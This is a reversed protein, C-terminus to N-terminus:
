GVKDSYVTGRTDSLPSVFVFRWVALLLVEDLAKARQAAADARPSAVRSGADPFRSGYRRQM